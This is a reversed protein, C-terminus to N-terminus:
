FNSFFIFIIKSTENPTININSTNNNEVPKPQQVTEVSATKKREEEELSQQIALHMDREFQSM